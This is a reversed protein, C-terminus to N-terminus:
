AALTETSRTRARPAELPLVEKPLSELPTGAHVLRAVTLALEPHDVLVAGVVHGECLLLKCYREDNLDSRRIESFTPGEGVVTGFSRFDIGKMKLVTAPPKDDWRADAGLANNAAIEAQSTAVSWLGICRRDFETADGAAYIEPDSTRMRDDVIIGRGTKLGAASALDINPAIGACVLVLDCCLVREDRMRVGRVRGAEDRLIGAIEIPGLFAIGAADLRRELVIASHRDAQRELLQDRHSLLTIQLGQERLAKAAELGLLGAGVVIARRAGTAEIFVRLAVIDQVTRMVFGGPGDFGEIPPVWARAGTALILKDYAISEGGAIDIRRLTRDISRVDCGLKQHICQSDFWDPSFISLRALADPKGLLEAIAMRNYTTLAEGGILTIRANPDLARAATAATAGAIGAGIVVLHTPVVPVVNPAVGPAIGPVRAPQARQSEDGSLRAAGIVVGVSTSTRARAMCALRTGSACRTRLLTRREDDGIEALGDAGDVIHVPDAGCQGMRCGANIPAGIAELSELVSQGKAVTMRLAGEPMVPVVQQMGPVPDQASAAHKALPVPQSRRSAPARLIPVSKPAMAPEHFAVDLRIITRRNPSSGRPRDLLAEVVIPAARVSGSKLNRLQNDLWAREGAITRFLWVIGAAVALTRISVAFAPDMPVGLSSLSRVLTASAYWYYIDFAIMAFMAPLLNRLSSVTADLLHFLAISIAVILATETLMPTIGISQAPAVTFWALVFGPFAASFLRRQSRHQRSDDYQDALQANRPEVDLCNKACGVCPKCHAHPVTVFPMQGYLRQVPLLPCITSCWGSKGKFVLGGVFAAALAAGILMATARGDGDLGLKRALVATVFMVLALPYFAGSALRVSHHNLSIGLWRPLQNSSALPCLNRWIGPAVLFVAPLIPIALGWWLVLGLDAKVFLTAVLAIASALTLARGIAWLVPMYRSSQM